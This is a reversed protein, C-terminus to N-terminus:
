FERLVCADVYVDTLRNKKKKGDGQKERQEKSVRQTVLVINM